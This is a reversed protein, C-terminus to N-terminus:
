NIPRGVVIFGYKDFFLEDKHLPLMLDKPLNEASWLEHAMYAGKIKM